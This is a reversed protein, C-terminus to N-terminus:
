LIHALILSVFADMAHINSWLRIAIYFLLGELFSQDSHISFTLLIQIKFFYQVKQGISSSWFDNLVSNVYLVQLPLQSDDLLFFLPFSLFVSIGIFRSGTIVLVAFNHFLLTDLPLFILDKLNSILICKWMIFLEIDGNRNRKCKIYAILAFFHRNPLLFQLFHQLLILFLQFLSHLRKPTLFHRGM